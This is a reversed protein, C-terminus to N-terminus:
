ILSLLWALIYYTGTVGMYLVVPRWVTDTRHYIVSYAAAQLAAYMVIFFGASRLGSWSMGLMGLTLILAGAITLPLYMKDRTESLPTLVMRLLASPIALYLMINVVPVRLLKTLYYMVTAFASGEPPVFSGDFIRSLVLYLVDVGFAAVTAYGVRKKWTEKPRGAGSYQINLAFGFAITVVLVLALELLKTLCEALYGNRNDLMWFYPMIFATIKGSLMNWYHLATILLATGAVAAAWLLVTEINKEKQTKEHYVSDLMEEERMARIESASMAKKEPDQKNPKKSMEYLRGKTILYLPCRAFFLRNM